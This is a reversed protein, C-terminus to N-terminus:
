FFLPRYHASYGLADPNRKAIVKAPIGGVVDLEAVDKNVLAHAAVVAGRHIHSPLVMARSAIWVYDEIVSPIPV